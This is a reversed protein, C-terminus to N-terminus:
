PPAAVSKENRSFSALLAGIRDQVDRYYRNPLLFNQMLLSFVLPEGDASNVYGSLASVGSITGTKARLNGEARTGRMRNKLTGDRGAIPLTEYLRRFFEPRKAISELLQVLMEATLLNYFSLGSGDVMRFRTTDIGFSAFIAKAAQIGAKATGPQGSTVVGLTKLVNEAALNDSEKNLNTLVSDIPWQHEAMIVSRDSIMGVTPVGLITVTDRELREHLLHAAYLGPQWVTIATKVTDSGALMEGEITIINLREQFMRSVTLPVRVTDTVTKANNLYSVYSTRPEIIVAVSDGGNKGPIVCVNVCNDNVSLPTIAAQYSFPEDDWMWGEGFSLDDFYSEDAVVSGIVNRIGRAKLQMVLTDMDALKFDPNGFGKFYLNGFVTGQVIPTDVYVTTWFNFDRGFTAIAAASTLLKNNSAPRMLLKSGREYLVEGTKLSKLLISANTATFLSDPLTADIDRRLKDVADEQIGLERLTSCGVMLLVAVFTLLTKM